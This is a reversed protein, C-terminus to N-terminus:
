GHHLVESLTLEIETKAKKDQLELVGKGTAIADRYVKRDYIIANLLALRPIDKVAELASNVESNASPVLLSVLQKILNTSQHTPAISLLSFAQLKPNIWQAEEILSSLDFLTDVDPQSPKFPTVLFDAALLASRFEVSDRGQCDVVVFEYTTALDLLTNKIHGEESVCYVEPLGASIRDKSWNSCTNQKDADVLIVRHDQSSLAVALNTAITSKGVGGKISGIVIIM